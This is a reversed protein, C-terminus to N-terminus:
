FVVGLTLRITVELRLRRETLPTQAGAAVSGSWRNGLPWTTGLLLAGLVSARQPDTSSQAPADHVRLLATTEARVWLGHFPEGFLAVSVGTRVGVRLSADAHPATVVPGFSLAIRETLRLDLDLGAFHLGYTVGVRAGADRVQANAVAPALAGALCAALISSRLM